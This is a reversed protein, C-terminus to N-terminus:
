RGGAFDQIQLDKCVQVVGFTFWEDCRPCVYVEVTVHGSGKVEVCRGCHPCTTSITLDEKM